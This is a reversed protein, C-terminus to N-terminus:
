TKEKLQNVLSKLNNSYVDRGLTDLYCKRVFNDYDM